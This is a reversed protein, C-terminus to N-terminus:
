TKHESWGPRWVRRASSLPRPRRAQGAKQERQLDHQRLFVGSGNQNEIFDVGANAARGSRCDALPQHPEAALGLHQRYRMGRLYRRVRVPMEPKILGRAALALIGPHFGARLRKVAVAPLLFDRAHQGALLDGFFRAGGGPLQNSGLMFNPSIADGIVACM